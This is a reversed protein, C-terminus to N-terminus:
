ETTSNPLGMQKLILISIALTNYGKEKQNVEQEPVYLRLECIPNDEDDEDKNFELTIENKNTGQQVNSLSNFPIQFWEKSENKFEMKNDSISYSGWNLGKVFKEM